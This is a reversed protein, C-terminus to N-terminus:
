PERTLQRIRSSVWESPEYDSGSWWHACAAPLNGLPLNHLVGSDMCTNPRVLERYSSRFAIRSMTRFLLNRIPQADKPTWFKMNPTEILFWSAFVSSLLCGFAIVHCTCLCCVSWRAHLRPASPERPPRPPSPRALALRPCGATALRRRRTAPREGSRAREASLAGPTRVGCGVSRAKRWTDRAITKGLPPWM